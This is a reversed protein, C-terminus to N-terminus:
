RYDTAAPDNRGTLLVDIINVHTGDPHGHPGSPTGEPSGTAAEVHVTHTHDITNIRFDSEYSLAEIQKSTEDKLRNLIEVVREVDKGYM